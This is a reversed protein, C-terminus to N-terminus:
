AKELIIEFEINNNHKNVIIKGDHLEVIRKTISLGLGSGANDSSRAQDLRYFKEFIKDLDEENVKECKNIFSISINPGKDKVSVKFESNNDSYKEANKIINEFVRYFLSVDIYCYLEKYSNELKVEIDKELFGVISEGVIQNILNSINFRVKNIKIDNGTLRTYEFLEDILEKLRLSKNYAIRIYEENFGNNNLIDLYGIVSTLPTKLDHSVATILDYKSQEIEKEKSFKEELRKSMINISKALEAFEDDGYVELKSLFKESEIKSVSEIIYNLYNIRKRTLLRFIIIFLLISLILTIITLMNYRIVFVEANTHNYAKFLVHKVYNDGIMTIFGFALFSILTAILGKIAISKVRIKKM